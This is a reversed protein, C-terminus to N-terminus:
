FTVGEVSAYQITAGCITDIDNITIFEMNDIEEETYYADNHNHSADAKADIAADLALMGTSIAEFEENIAKNQLPNTSTSSLESDVVFDTVDSMTHKHSFAAFINKLNDLFTELKSLSVYKKQAM